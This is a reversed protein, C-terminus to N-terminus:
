ERTRKIDDSNSRSFLLSADAFFLHSIQPAQRPIKLGHITKDEVFKHLMGSLVDACLIFLYPSLPDEQRTGRPPTFPTSPNGNILMQYTVSSLSKMNLSTLNHPFGMSVLTNEVFIWELRDYAKSMDLKLGM